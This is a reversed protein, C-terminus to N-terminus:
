SETQKAVAPPTNDNDPRAFSTASVSGRERAGTWLIATVNGISRRWSAFALILDTSARPSM